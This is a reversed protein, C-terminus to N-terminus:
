IEVEQFVEEMMEKPLVGWKCFIEEATKQIALSLNQRAEQKRSGNPISPCDDYRDVAKQVEVVLPGLAGRIYAMIEKKVKETENTKNMTTDRASRNLM